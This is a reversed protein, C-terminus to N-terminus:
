LMKCKGTMDTFACAAWQQFVGSSQSYSFCLGSRPVRPMGIAVAVVTGMGNTSFAMANSYPASGIM